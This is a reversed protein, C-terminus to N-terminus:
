TQSKRYEEYDASYFLPKYNCWYALQWQERSPKLDHEFDRYPQAFPQCGLAKLERIRGLADELDNRILVYFFLRRTPMGFGRLLEVAKHVDDQMTRSDYAMRLYRIWKVRSLLEAIEPTRAIKRADLGQNFDVRIGMRIIKEIQTLGWTTALVNNDLLVARKRGDLFEGIDAHTRIDGEKHPVICWPCRNVCGRTLFGYAESVGYLSYDPCTHEIEESLITEYDRYGTGARIVECNYRDPCDQSFTFVKSMYVKDYRGEVPDAFEVTDGRRKHWASLKMLALNPFNHGDVDVLGIRM